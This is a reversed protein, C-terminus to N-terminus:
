GGKTNAFSERRERLWIILGAIIVIASGMITWADPVEDFLLYRWLTLYLIFSYGFPMVLNAPAFRMSSTMLQHGAWGLVGLAILVGWQLGTEPNQWTMIAFPALTVAGFVGTYLQQTDTSVSGALMRTLLSYLAFAFAGALSLLAAWHFSDDFPRIAILIGCFGLAIAFWRYPGVPERLLPWSLLCVIIPASFLITATLSLPLYQIAVFNMVTAFTLLAARTVVLVPRACAFSKGNLGGRALLGLSIAAHGFYRMFSLQLAHLGLLGLWKTGADIFSFLVYAALILGIGLIPRDPTAHAAPPAAM